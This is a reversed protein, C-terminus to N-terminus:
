GKYDSHWRERADHYFEERLFWRVPLSETTLLHREEQSVFLTTEFWIIDATLAAYAMARSYFTGDEDFFYGFNGVSPVHYSEPSMVSTDGETLRLLRYLGRLYQITPALPDLNLEFYAAKCSGCHVHLTNGEWHKVMPFKDYGRYPTMM